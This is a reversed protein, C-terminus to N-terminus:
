NLELVPPLPSLPLMLILASAIVRSPSLAAIKLLTSESDVPLPPLMFIEASDNNNDLLERIEVIVKSCPFAPSIKM